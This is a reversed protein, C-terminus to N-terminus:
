RLPLVEQFPIALFSVFIKDGDFVISKPFGHLRVVERIFVSVISTAFFPHCLGIFLGYKSLRDVVVLISDFGESSPLAETFDMSIDDWINEPIALPQLLGAPTLNSYKNKQCIDCQAVFQQIDSKLGM